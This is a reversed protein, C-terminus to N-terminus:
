IINYYLYILIHIIIYLLHVARRRRDDEPHGEHALHEEECSVEGDGSAGDTRM